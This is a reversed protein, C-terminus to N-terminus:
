VCVDILNTKDKVDSGNACFIACKTFNMLSKLTCIVSDTIEPEQM